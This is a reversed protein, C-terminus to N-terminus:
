ASAAHQAQCNANFVRETSAPHKKLMAEPRRPRSLLEGGCNPCKGGLVRSTCDNCFTCEYSCIYADNSDPALDKNCCECNPRIQLM